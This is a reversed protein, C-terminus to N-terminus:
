NNLKQIKFTKSSGNEFYVKNFYVGEPLHSINMQNFAFTKELVKKGNLSYLEIKKIKDKSTISINGSSPNPYMVVKEEKIEQSSIATINNCIVYTALFNMSLNFISDFMPVNNQYSIHTNSNISLLQTPASIDLLRENIDHSGSATLGTPITGGFYVEETGYPVVDDGIDHVSFVPKYDQPEIWSTDGIAGSLNIVAHVRSSYGQNGSIGEIGGLNNLNIAPVTEYSQDLFAVHLATIAGASIGGVIIKNTDIKYPNGNQAQKYFFRVAARMDHMARVVAKATNVSDPLFFGTRYDITACTYGMKTYEHCIPHMDTRSGSVFSGPFALIILPRTSLTDNSPEFFDLKLQQQNVGGVIVNSGYLINTTVVDTTFFNRTVFRGYSCDYQSYSSFSYIAIAIFVLVKKM